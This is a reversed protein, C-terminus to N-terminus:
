HTLPRNKSGRFLASLPTEANFPPKATKGVVDEEKRRPPVPLSQQNYQNEVHQAGPAVYVLTYHSGSTKEGDAQQLRELLRGIQEIVDEINNNM